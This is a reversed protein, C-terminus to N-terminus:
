AAQIAANESTRSLRDVLTHVDKVFRSDPRVVGAPEGCNLAERTTDMDVTLKGTIQLGLAAEADSVKLANRFSRREFKGIVAERHICGGAMDKLRGLIDRGAHLSPITLETVVTVRDAGALVPLSWSQMHRPMDIVVHDYLSTAADLLAM